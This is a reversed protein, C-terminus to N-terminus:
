RPLPVLPVLLSSAAGPGRKPDPYPLATGKPVDGGLMTGTEGRLGVPLFLLCMASSSPHELMEGGEAPVRGRALLRPCLPLMCRFRLPPLSPLCSRM